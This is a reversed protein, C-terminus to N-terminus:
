LRDGYGDRRRRYMFLTRPDGLPDAHCRRVATSQCRKTVRNVLSPTGFRDLEAHSFASIRRFLTNRLQTGFGQSTISAVYQCALACLLGVTIIGLM